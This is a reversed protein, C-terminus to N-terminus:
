NSLQEVSSKKNISDVIQYIRQSSIKYKSVLDVFSLGSKYDKYLRDNRHTKEKPKVGM